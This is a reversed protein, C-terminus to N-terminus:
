LESDDDEIIIEAEIPALSIRMDLGPTRELDVHFLEEEEDVLDNVITITICAERECSGFMLLGDLSVYDM